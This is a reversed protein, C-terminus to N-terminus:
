SIVGGRWLTCRGILRTRRGIGAGARILTRRGARRWGLGGASGGCRGQLRSISVGSKWAAANPWVEKGDVLVAAVYDVTGVCVAGAISGYYDLAKSGAGGGKASGM